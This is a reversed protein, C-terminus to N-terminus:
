NQYINYYMNFYEDYYNNNNNYYMDYYMDEYCSLCSYDCHGYIYQSRNKDCIRCFVIEEDDSCLDDPYYYDLAVYYNDSVPLIKCDKIICDCGLNFTKPTELCSPWM